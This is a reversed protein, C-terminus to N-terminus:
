TVFPAVLRHCGTRDADCYTHGGLCPRQHQYRRSASSRRPFGSEARETKPRCKVCRARIVCLEAWVFFKSSGEVVGLFLGGKCQEHLRHPMKGTPLYMVGEFVPLGKNFPVWMQTQASITWRARDPAAHDAGGRTRDVVVLDLQSHKAGDCVGRRGCLSHHTGSRQFTVTMGRRAVDPERSSCPAEPLRHGPRLIVAPSGTAIMARMLAAVLWRHVAGKAPVVDATM